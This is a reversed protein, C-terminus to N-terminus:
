GRSKNLRMMRDVLSIDKQAIRKIQALEKGLKSLEQMSDTRDIMTRLARPNTGNESKLVSGKLKVTTNKLEQYRKLKSDRMSVLSKLRNYDGRLRSKVADLARARSPSFSARTASYTKAKSAKKSVRVPSTVSHAVYSAKRVEAIEAEKNSIVQELDSIRENLAAVISNQSEANTVKRNVLRLEDKLSFIQADKEAVLKNVENFKRELDTNSSNNINKTLQIQSNLAEIRDRQNKVTASATRLEAELSASLNSSECEKQICPQPIPCSVKVCEAKEQASSKKERGSLLDKEKISSETSIGKRKIIANKEDLENEVGILKRNLEEISLELEAIYDVLQVGEADTRFARGDSLRGRESDEAFLNIAILLVFIIRLAKM